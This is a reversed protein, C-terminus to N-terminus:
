PPLFADVDSKSYLTLVNLGFDFMDKHIHKQLPRLKGSPRKLEVFFVDVTHQGPYSLAVIRDPVGGTSKFKYTRGGHEKVRQVLYKEIASERIMM